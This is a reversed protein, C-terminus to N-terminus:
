FSEPKITESKARNTIKVLNSRVAFVLHEARKSRLYVRENLEFERSRLILGESGPLISRPAEKLFLPLNYRRRDSM